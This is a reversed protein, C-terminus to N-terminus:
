NEDEDQTAQGIIKTGLIQNLADIQAQTKGQQIGTYGGTAALGLGVGQGATGSEAARNGTSMGTNNQITQYAVGANRDAATLGGNTRTFNADNTSTLANYGLTNRSTNDNITGTKANYAQSDRNSNDNTTQTSANYGTINRNSNNNIMGTQAQYGQSDRNSNSNITTANANWGLADRNTNGTIADSEAGYAMGTRTTKDNINARKAGFIDNERQGLQATTALGTNEQNQSVNMRRVADNQAYQDQFQRMSDDATRLSDAAGQAGQMATMSRGVANSELGLEALVRDQSTSQRAALQAAIQQGGSNLGRAQLQAYTADRSSKDQGETKQRAAEAIFREQATVEPNSLKNYKDYVDQQQGVYKPDSGRATQAALLPNTQELYRQYSAQDQGNLNGLHTELNNANWDGEENYGDMSQGLEFAAQDARDNLGSLQGQFGQNATSMENNSADLKDQYGYYAGTEAANSASLQGQLAKLAATQQANSASLQGTYQGMAANQASNAQSLQGQYTSLGASQAANTSNIAATRQGQTANLSSNLATGGAQLQQEAARDATIQDGQATTFKGLAPQVTQNFYDESKQAGQTSVDGIKQANDTLAQVIADNKASPSGIAAEHQLQPAQVGGMTGPNNQWSQLTQEPTTGDVGSWFDVQGSVTPDSMNPQAPTPQGPMSDLQQIQSQLERIRQAQPGNSTMVRDLDASTPPYHGSDKWIQDIESQYQGRLKEKNQQQQVQTPM